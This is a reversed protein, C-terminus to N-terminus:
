MGPMPMPMTSNDIDRSLRWTGDAGKELLVIYRGEDTMAAGGAKPTMSTRLRGRDFGFNGMTMTEDPMIEITGTMQEFTTRMNAVIAERGSLTPQHNTMSIADVTYLDALADASGSNWAKQFSSRLTNVSALDEPANMAPAAPEAACAALSAAFVLVVCVRLFRTM